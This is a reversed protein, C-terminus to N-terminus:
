HGGVHAAQLIVALLVGGIVTAVIGLGWQWARLRAKNLRDLEQRAADRERELQARAALEQATALERLDSTSIHQRKEFERLRRGIQEFGATMQARMGALERAIGGMSEYLTRNGDLADKALDLAHQARECGPQHAQTM